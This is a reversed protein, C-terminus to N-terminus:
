EKPKDQIRFIFIVCSTQDPLKKCWEKLDEHYKQEAGGSAYDNYDNYDNYDRGYDNYDRGYDRYDRGRGYDNYDNYDAYDRSDRPRIGGIGYMEYGMTRPHERYREGGSHYGERRYEHYDRGDYGRSYESDSYRNDMARDMGRYDRGGRRSDVYGGRSGYPNRQDKQRRRELYRNPM